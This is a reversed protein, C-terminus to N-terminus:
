PAQNKYGNSPFPELQVGNGICYSNEAQLPSVEEHGQAQIVVYLAAGDQHRTEHEGRTTRCAFLVNM